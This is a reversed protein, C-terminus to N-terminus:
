QDAEVHGLIPFLSWEAMGNEEPITRKYIRYGADKLDMIRAPVHRVRHPADQLQESTMPGFERLLDRVQRAQPSIKESPEGSYDYVKPQRITQPMPPKITIISGNCNITFEMESQVEPQRAQQESQSSPKETAPLAKKEDM